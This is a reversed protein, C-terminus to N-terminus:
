IIKKLREPKAELEEEIKSMGESNQEAEEYKSEKSDNNTSNGVNQLPFLPNLTKYHLSNECTDQSELNEDALEQVTLSNKM